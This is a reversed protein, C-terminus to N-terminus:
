HHHCERQKEVALRGYFTNSKGLGFYRATKQRSLHWHTYKMGKLGSSFQHCVIQSVALAGIGPRWTSLPRKRRPDILSELRLKGSGFVKL